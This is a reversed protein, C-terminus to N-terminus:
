NELLRQAYQLGAERTSFTGAAQEELLTSLMHGLKRSPKIGFAEMLDNGDVLAKPAVLTDYAQFYTEIVPAALLDLLDGWSEASGQMYRYRALVNLISGVGMDQARRYYRFLTRRSPPLGEPFVFQQGQVFYTLTRKESNSLKLHQTWDSVTANSEDDILTGLLLLAELSREDTLQQGLYEQLAARYRDLVMVAVGLFLENAINDDRRPSIITLLEYFQKLLRLLNPDLGQGAPHVIEFIGVAQYLSLLAPADTKQLGKFLEDRVREPQVLVGDVELLPAAYRVAKTTEPALRLGFQLGMRLARLARVPDSEISGEACQHLVKEVLLHRQGDTPDLVQDLDALSVAIANITFDRGRLDEQLNGGRFSAIDIHQQGLIIRGTGREPDVPYYASDLRNAIIRAVELGDGATTLDIDSTTAGRLADRVVGGVLYLADLDESVERLTEVLAPWRLPRLPSEPTISM